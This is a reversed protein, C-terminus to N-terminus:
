KPNNSNGVDLIEQLNTPEIKNTILFYFWRGELEAQLINHTFLGTNLTENEDPQIYSYDCLNSNIVAHRADLLQNISFENARKPLHARENYDSLPNFNNITYM